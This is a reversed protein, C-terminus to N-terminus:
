QRTVAPKAVAPKAVLRGSGANSGDHNRKAEEQCFYTDLYM